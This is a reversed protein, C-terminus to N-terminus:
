QLQDNKLVYSGTIHEFRKVNEKHLANEKLTLLPHEYRDTPIKEGSPLIDSKDITM